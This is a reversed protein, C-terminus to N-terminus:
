ESVEINKNGEWTGHLNCWDFARLCCHAHELSVCFTVTPCARTHTFDARAIFTEDAYLDVFAVFHGPENPHALLKGVEVKVEFCEGKKVKEPASIVPTHKKELDTMNEPDKAMNVGCFLDDECQKKHESGCAM